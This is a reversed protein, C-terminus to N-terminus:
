VGRGQRMSNTHGPTMPSEAGPNHRQGGCKCADPEVCRPSSKKASSVNAMRYQEIHPFATV